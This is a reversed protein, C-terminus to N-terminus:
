VMVKLRDFLGVIVIFDMELVLLKVNDFGKDVDGVFVVVVKVGVERM